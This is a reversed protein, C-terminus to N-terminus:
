PGESSFAGPEDSLAAMWIARAMKAAVTEVPDDDMGSGSVSYGRAFWAFRVPYTDQTQIGVPIGMMREMHSRVAEVDQESM